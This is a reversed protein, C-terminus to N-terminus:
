LMVWSLSFISSSYDEVSMYGILCRPYAGRMSEKRKPLRCLTTDLARRLFGVKYCCCCAAPEPQPFLVLDLDLGLHLRVPRFPSSSSGGALRSQLARLRAQRLAFLKQVPRAKHYPLPAHRRPIRQQQHHAQKKTTKHQLIKPKRRNMQMHYPAHSSLLSALVSLIVCAIAIIEEM